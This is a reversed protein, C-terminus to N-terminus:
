YIFKQIELSIYDPFYTVAQKLETRVEAPTKCWPSFYWMKGYCPDFYCLRIEWYRGRTLMTKKITM